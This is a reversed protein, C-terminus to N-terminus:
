KLALTKAIIWTIDTLCAKLKDYTTQKSEALSALTNAPGPSFWGPWLGSVSVIPDCPQLSIVQYQVLYVLVYAAPLLSGQVENLAM